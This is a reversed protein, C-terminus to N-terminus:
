IGEWKRNKEGKLSNSFFLFLGVGILVLWWGM